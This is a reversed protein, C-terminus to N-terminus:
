LDAGRRLLGYVADATAKTTKWDRTQKQKLLWVKCEEVAAADNMVEDFAEIMLAQTEIPALYWWWSFEQEAWYRGMEEDALSREKLSRMIKQAEAPFGFRNLALALHGQSQRYGLKLWHAKAQDLYYDVAKRAEEPIPNDKLFFSRGYLYLAATTGLNNRDLVKRRVLDQYNELAWADLGPLATLALDQPVTAVGMNKLRGFGTVIYLSIYRDPRGGPFWPWAGREMMDELKRYASKIEAELRNDDFLLGVRKKAQSESQAERVWPSEQLLVSKLDENKELNSDLASTGKWLEFVRRIKPDSLAIHRALSNAYLRNFVQESCEYPFEMLYPLAQVAYWAPNSTMQLTLGQHVLTRSGDSGALKDLSFTKQGQGSIWLPVSEQVFLRRSLIPLWGEEGDSHKDTAAVAKFAVVELGEPVQLRWSLSRSQKAPISFDKKNDRNGLEADRAKETAPDTFTLRVAGQIDASTMNTVKVSFELVDGERLFRPPNPQVMLDKQTVATAELAGSALDRTHALGLFRWATLAEPMAFELSVSGDRDALLHPFFFATENL